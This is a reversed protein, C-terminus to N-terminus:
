SMPGLPRLERWKIQVRWKMQVDVPGAESVTFFCVTNFYIDVLNPAHCVPPRHDFGEYLLMFFIEVTKLQCTDILLSMSEDQYQSTKISQVLDLDIITNTNYRNVVAPILFTIQLKWNQKAPNLM